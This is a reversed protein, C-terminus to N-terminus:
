TLGDRPTFRNRGNRTVEGESRGVMGRLKESFSTPLDQLVAMATRSARVTGTGEGYEESVDTKEGRTLPRTDGM